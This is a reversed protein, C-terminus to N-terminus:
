PCPNAYREIKAALDSPSLRRSVFIRPALLPADSSLTAGPGATFALDFGSDAVRKIAASDYTAYPYAFTRPRFGLRDALTRQAYEVQKFLASSTLGRLDRHTWSHNGIAHGRAVLDRMQRFTLSGTRGAYGPLVFYSGRMRLRELIPAAVRYGNVESDDISVVFRRPKPCQRAALLDALRNVTITRWGLTRLHALQREFKSPCMWITPNPSWSPADCRIHHYILVPVTLTFPPEAAHAPAALPGPGLLLAAAVALAAALRLRFLKM